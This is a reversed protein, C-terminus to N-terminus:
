TLFLEVVLVRGQRYRSRGLRRCIVRGSHSVAKEYMNMGQGIEVIVYTPDHEVKWAHRDPGVLESRTRIIIVDVISEVILSHM